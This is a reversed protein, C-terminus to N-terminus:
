LGRERLLNGLIEGHRAGIVWHRHPDSLDLNTVVLGGHERKLLSLADDARIQTSTRIKFDATDLVQVDGIFEWPLFWTGVHLGEQSVCIHSANRWWVLAAIISLVMGVSTGITATTAAAVAVGFTSTMLLSLALM